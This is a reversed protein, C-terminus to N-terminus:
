TANGMALYGANFAPVMLKEELDASEGAMVFCFFFRSAERRVYAKECASRVPVIKCLRLLKVRQYCATIMGM